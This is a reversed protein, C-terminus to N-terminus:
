LTQIGGQVTVILKLAGHQNGGLAKYHLIEKLKHWPDCYGMTQVWKLRQPKTRGTWPSNPPYDKFNGESGM